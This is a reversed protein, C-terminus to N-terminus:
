GWLYSCLWMWGECIAVSGCGVEWLPTYTYLGKPPTMKLHDSM